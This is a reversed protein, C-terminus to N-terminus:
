ILIDFQTVDQKINKTSHIQFKQRITFNAIDTSIELPFVRIAFNKIFEDESLSNEKIFTKICKEKQKALEETIETAIKQDLM